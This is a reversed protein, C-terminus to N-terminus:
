DPEGPVDTTELAAILGSIKSDLANKAGDLRHTIDGTMDVRHNERYKEPRRAKLTFILLTDSYERITGVKRGNQYVPKDTGEVARRRAEDEFIDTGEELAEEWEAAFAEDDAKWEYATAKGIRVAKCAGTVSLGRRIADLFAKRTKDTRITRM